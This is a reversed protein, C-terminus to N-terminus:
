PILPDYDMRREFDPNMAIIIYSEDKLADENDLAEILMLGTADVIVAKAYDYGPERFAVLAVPTENYMDAVTLSIHGGRMEIIGSLSELAEKQTKSICTLTGDWDGSYLFIEEDLKPLWQINENSPM